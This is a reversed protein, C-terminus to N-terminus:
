EREGWDGTRSHVRLAPLTGVLAPGSSRHEGSSRVFGHPGRYCARDYFYVTPVHPPEPLPEPTLGAKVMRAHRLELKWHDQLIRGREPQTKRRILEGMCVPCPADGVDPWDGRFAPVWREQEGYIGTEIKWLGV